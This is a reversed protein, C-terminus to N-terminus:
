FQRWWKLQKKKQWVNGAHMEQKFVFRKNEIKYTHKDVEYLRNPM